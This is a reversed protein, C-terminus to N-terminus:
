RNLQFELEELLETENKIMGKLFLSGKNLKLECLHYEISKNLSSIREIIKIERLLEEIQRTRAESKDSLELKQLVEKRYEIDTRNDQNIELDYDYTVTKKKNPM